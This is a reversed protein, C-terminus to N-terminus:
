KSKFRNRIELKRVELSKAEQKYVQKSIVGQLFLKKIKQEERRVAALKNNLERKLILQKEDANKIKGKEIREKKKKQKLSAVRKALTNSISEKKRVEKKPLDYDVGDFQLKEFPKDNIFLVFEVFYNDASGDNPKGKKLKVIGSFSAEGSRNDSLSKRVNEVIRKVSNTYYTYSRTNFVRTYGLSGANIKVDLCDPLVFRLHEDIQYYEIDILQFASLYLPNCIEAPPLDSLSSRVDDVISKATFGGKRKFKNYLISAKKRKTEQGIQQKDKQKRNQEGVQKFIYNYLQLGKLKSVM